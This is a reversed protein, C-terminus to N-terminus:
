SSPGKVTRTDGDGGRLPGVSQTSRRDSGREAARGYWLIHRNEREYTEIGLGTEKRGGIALRLASLSYDLCAIAEFLMDMDELCLDYSAFPSPKGISASPPPASRVISIRIELGLGGPFGPYRLGWWRDLESVINDLHALKVSPYLGKFQDWAKVIDHGFGRLLKEAHQTYAQVAVQRGPQPVSPAWGYSDKDYVPTLIAAKFIVEFGQHFLSGAVSEHGCLLAHRGHVYYQVGTRFFEHPRGM